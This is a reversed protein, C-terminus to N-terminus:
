RAPAPARASAGRRAPQLRPPKRPRAPPTRQIRAPEVGVRAADEPEEPRDRAADDRAGPQSDARLVASRAAAAGGRPAGRARREDHEPPVPHAAGSDAPEPQLVAQSDAAPAEPDLPDARPAVRVADRRRVRFEAAGAARLGATDPPVARPSRLARRASRSVKRAERRPLIPSPGPPS